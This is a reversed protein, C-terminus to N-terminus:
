GESIVMITGITLVCFLWLEEAGATVVVTTYSGGQYKGVSGTYRLSIGRQYTWSGNAVAMPSGRAGNAEM